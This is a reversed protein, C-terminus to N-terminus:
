SEEAREDSLDAGVSAIFVHGTTHADPRTCCLPGRNGDNHIACTM